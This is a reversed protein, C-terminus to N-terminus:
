KGSFANHSKPFKKGIMLKRGYYIRLSYIVNKAQSAIPFINPFNHDCEGSKALPIADLALFGKYISVKKRN